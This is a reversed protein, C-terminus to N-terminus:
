VRVGRLRRAQEAQAEYKAAAGLAMGAMEAAEEGTFGYPDAAQQDRILSLGARLIEAAIADPTITVEAIIYRSM